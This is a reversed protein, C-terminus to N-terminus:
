PLLVSFQQVPKLAKASLIHRSTINLFLIPLGRIEPLDISRKEYRGAKWLRCQVLGSRPITASPRRQRPVSTPKGEESSTQQVERRKM